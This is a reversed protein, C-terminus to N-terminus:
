PQIAGGHPANSMAVVVPAPPNGDARAGQPFRFEAEAGLVRMTGRRLPWRTGVTYARRLWCWHGLPPPRDHPKLVLNPLPETM